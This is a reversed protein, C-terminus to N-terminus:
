FAVPVAGPCDICGTPLCPAGCAPCYVGSADAAAAYTERAERKEECADCYVVAGYGGGDLDALTMGAIPTECGACTAPESSLCTGCIGTFNGAEIKNECGPNTCRQDAHTHM